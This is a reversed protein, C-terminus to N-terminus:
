LKETEKIIKEVTEELGGNNDIRVDCYERYLSYRREYLTNLRDKKDALLPRGSVDIDSFINELSRDIFVVVGGEKFADINEKREVCGGGTSIVIDRRKALEIAARTELKRFEEEGFKEFIEPITMGSKEEVFDDCDIFDRELSQALLKGITSKGCGPMGILVINM